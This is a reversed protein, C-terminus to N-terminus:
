RWAPRMSAEAPPVLLLRATRLVASSLLTSTAYAYGTGPLAALSQFGCGGLYEPTEALLEQEASFSDEGTVFRLAAFVRRAFLEQAPRAQSPVECRAIHSRSPVTCGRLLSVVMQTHGLTHWRVLRELLPEMDHVKGV